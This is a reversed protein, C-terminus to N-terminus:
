MKEGCFHKEKKYEETFYLINSCVYHLNLHFASVDILIAYIGFLGNYMLPIATNFVTKQKRAVKVFLLTEKGESRM